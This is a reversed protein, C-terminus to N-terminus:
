ATRRQDRARAGALCQNTPAAAVDVDALGHVGRGVLDPRRVANHGTWNVELLLLRRHLSRPWPGPPQRTATAAPPRPRRHHRDTPHLHHGGLRGARRRPASACCGPFPPPTSPSRQGVAPGRGHQRGQGALDARRLAHHHAQRPRQLPERPARRVGLRLASGNCSYIQVGVAHGVLFVKNGASGPDGPVDPPRDRRPWRCSPRVVQASLALAACRANSSRYVHGSASSTRVLSRFSGCQRARWSAATREGTLLLAIEGFSSTALGSLKPRRAVTPCFM